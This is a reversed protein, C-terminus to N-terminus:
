IEVGVKANWIKLSKDYQCVANVADSEGHCLEQLFRSRSLEKRGTSRM